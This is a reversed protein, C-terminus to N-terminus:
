EKLFQLQISVVDKTRSQINRDDPLHYEGTSILQKILDNKGASWDSKVSLFEKVAQDTGNAILAELEM